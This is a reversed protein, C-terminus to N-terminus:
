FSRLLFGVFYFRVKTGWPFSELVSRRERGGAFTSMSNYLKLTVLILENHSGGLYTGMRRSCAPTLLTKLISLGHPHYTYHSSLLTLLSALVSVVLALLPNQRSNANEWIAFIDTAGPAMELWRQALLLRPDHPSIAPEGLRITLQNRLSTLGINM